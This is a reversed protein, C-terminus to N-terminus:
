ALRYPGAENQRGPAKPRPWAHRQLGTVLTFENSLVLAALTRLQEVSLTIEGMCDDVLSIRKWVDDTDRHILIEPMSHQEVIGPM